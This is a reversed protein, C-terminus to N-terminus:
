KQTVGRLPSSPEESEPPSKAGPSKVIAPPPSAKPPAHPDSPSVSNPLSDSPSSGDDAYRPDEIPDIREASELLTGAEPSLSEGRPGAGPDPVLLLGVVVLTGTVLAAGLWGVISAALGGGTVATGAAAAATVHAVIQATTLPSRGVSAHLAQDLRIEDALAKRVEPSRRAEDRLRGLDGSSYDEPRSSRVRDIWDGNSM